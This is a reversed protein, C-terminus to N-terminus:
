DIGSDYRERKQRDSLIEYANNMERFSINKNLKSSKKLRDPHMLLAMKRYNKKIEADTADRPVGLISYIDKGEECRKSEAKAWLIKKDIALKQDESSAMERATEFDKVANECNEKGGIYISSGARRVYIKFDKCGLSIAETCDDVVEQHKRLNYNVKSRSFLLDLRFVENDHPCIKLADDYCKKAEEYNREKNFIKAESTKKYLANLAKHLKKAKKNKPDEVLINDLIKLSEDLEGLYFLSRSRLLLIRSDNKHHKILETTFDYAEQSKNLYSFARTKLYMAEKWGPLSLDFTDNSRGLEEAREYDILAKEYNDRGGALILSAARRLFAKLYEEDYSIADTCDSVADDHQLINANSVGRNFYLRSLLCRTDVIDLQTTEEIAKSYVEIAKNFSRNKFLNDADRKKNRIKTVNGLLERATKNSSDFSLADKLASICGDLNAVKIQDFAKTDYKNGNSKM